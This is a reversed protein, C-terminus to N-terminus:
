QPAKLYNELTNPMIERSHCFICQKPNDKYQALCYPCFYKCDQQWSLLRYLKIFFKDNM